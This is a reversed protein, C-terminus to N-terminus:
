YIVIQYQLVLMNKRESVKLDGNVAQQYVPRNQLGLTLKNLHGNLYLNVGLDYTIMSENLRDFDSYQIALNPQLQPSSQEGKLRQMLYGLQFFVTSGTGMMPFANGAGNFSSGGETYNNAGLNRIYNPGFDTFFYGLYTTLATGKVKDLPSDYFLEATWSRFNFFQENGNILAATMNKQHMIGGGLNLIRKKGLHTGVGGSFPTKNSENDLFEYKLYASYRFNERGPAFDAIGERTPLSFPAPEKLALVYDFKGVQGKAWIGLTRGLDDTRNVTSLSFLPADLAMYSYTSRVNWRSTGGWASEGLGLELAESVKYEVYYDLIDMTFDMENRENLNNNGMLMYVYVRPTLQAAINLRIRRISFDLGNQLTDNEIHTGPNMETYRAWFQGRLSARIYTEGKDDLNLRLRPGQASLQGPAWLLLLLVIVQRLSKFFAEALTM